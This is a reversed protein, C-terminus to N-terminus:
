PLKHGRHTRADRWAVTHPFPATPSNPQPNASNMANLSQVGTVSPGVRIVSGNPSAVMVRRRSADALCDAGAGRSIPDSPPRPGGRTGHPAAGIGPARSLGEPAAVGAGGGRGRGGNARRHACTSNRVPQAVAHCLVPSKLPVIVLSSSM